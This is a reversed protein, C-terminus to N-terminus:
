ESISPLKKNIARNLNSMLKFKTIDQLSIKKEAEVKDRIDDVLSYDPISEIFNISKIEEIDNLDEKNGISPLDLDTNLKQAESSVRKSIM